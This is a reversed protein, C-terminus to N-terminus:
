KVIKTLLKVRWPWCYLHMPMGFNALNKLSTEYLEEDNDKGGLLWDSRADYVCTVLVPKM